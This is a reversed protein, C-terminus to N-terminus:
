MRPAGNRIKEFNTRTNSKYKTAVFDDGSSLIKCPAQMSEWYMSLSSSPLGSLGETYSFSTAIFAVITTNLENGGSAM